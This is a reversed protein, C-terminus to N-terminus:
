LSVGTALAIAQFPTPPAGGPKALVDVPMRLAGELALKIKARQLLGPAPTSEILLDLDGGRRADDLRSGFVVVRAEAGVQARITTVITKIQVSTLRM